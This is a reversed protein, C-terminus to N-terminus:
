RTLKPSSAGSGAISYASNSINWNLTDLILTNVVISLQESTVNSMSNFTINRSPLYILGQLTHGASGNITFSSTSLGQPEFMLINAYTGTTPATLSINVGSNIQIYSTDAFYLTVGSGSVNWGSNHNWSTGKFIYLGPNLTLTGSGNFNFGGCYVGPSLTASGSYNQNSVTCSGVTVSPLSSGFPDSAVACGTSLAPVSGANNLINTGAVCLKGVNFTDGSNITMAPNGTSAVDIECGTANITVSSNALIGPSATKSLALICVNSTSASSAVAAKATANISVSSFGAIRMVSTQVSASASVQYTGTAPETETVTPSIASAYAGLNALVASQALQQRAAQTTSANKAATLAAEDVAAQLRSKAVTARQYDISGGILVSLPFLTLGFILAVNGSSSKKFRAIFRRVGLLGLSM